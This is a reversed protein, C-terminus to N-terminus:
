WKSLLLAYVRIEKAIRFSRFNLLHIQYWKEVAIGLAYFRIIFEASNVFLFLCLCYIAAM